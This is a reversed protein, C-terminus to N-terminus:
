IKKYIRKFIEKEAQNLSDKYNYHMLRLPIIDNNGSLTPQIYTVDSLAFGLRTYFGIRRKSIDDDKDEVELIVANKNNSLYEKLFASGIGGGRKDPTVAFHEVFDFGCLSWVAIFAIINGNEKQVTIKYNSNELLALQKEYPRYEAPPFSKKMLDYVQDFDNPNLIELKTDSM